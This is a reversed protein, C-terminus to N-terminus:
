LTHADGAVIVRSGPCVNCTGHSPRKPTSKMNGCCHTTPACGLLKAHTRASRMSALRNVNEARAPVRRVQKSGDPLQVQAGLGVPPQLAGLLRIAPVMM